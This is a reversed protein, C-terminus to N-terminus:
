TQRRSSLAMRRRVLKQHGNLQRRMKSKKKERREEGPAEDLRKNRERATGGDVTGKEGKAGQNNTPQAEAALGTMTV